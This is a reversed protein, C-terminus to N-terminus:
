ETAPTMLLSLKLAYKEQALEPLWLMVTPTSTNPGNPPAKILVVASVAILRAGPAVAIKPVVLEADNMTSPIRPVPVTVLPEARMKAVDLFTTQPANRAFGPNTAGTEVKDRAM